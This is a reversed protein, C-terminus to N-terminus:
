DRFVGDIIPTVFERSLTKDGSLSEVMALSIKQERVEEPTIKRHKLIEEIEEIGERRETDTM